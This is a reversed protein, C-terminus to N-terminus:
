QKGGKKFFIQLILRSAVLSGLIGSFALIVAQGGFKGLNDVILNNSGISVGLIFLLMFITASITKETKQLLKWNRLAYGIGIGLFMISIISFM